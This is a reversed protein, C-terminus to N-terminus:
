RAGDAGPRAGRHGPSGPPRTGALGSRPGPQRSGAGPPRETPHGAARWARPDRSRARRHRLRRQLPGHDGPAGARGRGRAPGALLLCHSKAAGRGVRGRLQHLQSLGFREAHEIVMVSANPVDVGVEVVTTSVLVDVERRRFSEMIDEKQDAKLRGHLLGVRAEPLAASWTAAGQTADRLDLKESEEVLPFVVYAQHGAALERQVVAVADARRADTVVRTEIPTRGPPLEDIISVDLDGYLTMALTRPIPTATMVLVDPRAGRSALAHRQLVGFRHQEDIVVLGLKSFGVGDQILAHTGIAVAASGDAVAARAAARAKPKGSGTLLEVRVGLPAFYRTFSTAHQEALLETPAMVAVQYGAQVAVAAAVLAVATKGSGVDGQLLRNMPEPRAMDALVQAVARSQAGTLTFPLLGRAREVREPTVEVAIGPEVKVGRRRLALGLQMFFLEDFALRQHGDSRHADLAELEEAGDPFHIARVSEALGKIGLRARLEAPLPEEIDGAHREVIKFALDRLARQEHREFGSYVPVIRGFHVASTEADDAPEVEPHPIEWGWTTQRVEGTVVMRQGIPFRAKLWPGAQYFTAAISGSSDALVARFMRRGRGQTDEAVKVEALFTGREGAQLQAIKKLKRRDEYARPILFLVDGIRRVGKRELAKLLRPNLRGGFSKLPQALPGTSPAISLIRAPTDAEAVAAKKSRSATRAPASSTRKSAAAGSPQTAQGPTAARPVTPAAVSAPKTASLAPRSPAAPAAPPAASVSGEVVALARAVAARRVSEDPSELRPVEQELASRTPASVAGAARQLAGAVLPGLGKVHRLNAFDRASAYRLPGVLAQLPHASSSM